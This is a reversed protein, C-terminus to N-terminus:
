MRPRAVESVGEDPDIEIALDPPLRHLTDLRDLTLLTFLPWFDPDDLKLLGSPPEKQRSPSPLTTQKTESRQSRKLM